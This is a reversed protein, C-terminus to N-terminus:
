LAYGFSFIIRGTHIIDQALGPLNTTTHNGHNDKKINQYLSVMMRCAGFVIKVLPLSKTVL